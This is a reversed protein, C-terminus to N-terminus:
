ENPDPAEDDSPEVKPITTAKDVEGIIKAFVKGAQWFEPCNTTHIKLGAAWVRARRYADVPAADAEDVQEETQSCLWLCIICDKVAGPYLGTRKYQDFGDKGIDPYIMGMSQGAIMRTPTWPFLKTGLLVNKDSDTFSDPKRTPKKKM